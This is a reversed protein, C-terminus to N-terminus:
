AVEVNPEVAVAAGHKRMLWRESYLAKATRCVETLFVTNYGGGVAAGLIPVVQALKGKALRVVLAEAVKKVLEATLKRDSQNPRSHSAMSKGIETIDSLAEQRASDTVTAAVSLVLLAYCEEEQTEIDFGFYTAHENIARLSLTVLAPIDLAIGLAGAVGAAAGEAAALTQYKLSLRGLVDVLEDLELDEIDDVSDVDHGASQFEELIAEKRVTWSAVDNLVEIVKVVVNEFRDGLASGFAKDGALDLPKDALEVVKEFWGESPNKFARIEALIASEADSATM